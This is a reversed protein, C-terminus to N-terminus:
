LGKEKKFIELLQKATFYKGERYENISRHYENFNEGQYYKNDLWEAFEIAYDDAIQECIEAREIFKIEKYFKEKLTM